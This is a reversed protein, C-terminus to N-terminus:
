ANRVVLIQEVPVVPILLVAFRELLSKVKANVTGIDAVQAYVISCLFGNFVEIGYTLEAVLKTQLL